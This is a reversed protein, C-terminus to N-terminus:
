YLSEDLKFYILSERDALGDDGFRERYFRLADAKRDAVEVSSKSDIGPRIDLPATTAGLAKLAGKAVADGYDIGPDHPDISFSIHGVYVRTGPDAADYFLYRIDEIVLGADLKCQLKYLRVDSADVVQAFYGSTPLRLGTNTLPDRFWVFCRDTVNGRGSETVQIRGYIAKEDSGLAGPDYDDVRIPTLSCSAVACCLAVMSSLFTVRGVQRRRDRHM